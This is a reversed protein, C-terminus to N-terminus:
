AIQKRIKRIGRICIVILVIGAVMEFINQGMLLMETQKVPVYLGMIIFMDWVWHFLMTPIINKTKYFVWAFVGGTIGASIMQKLTFAFTAGGLLNTIHLFGFISASILIAPYIGRSEKFANFIIGRFLMEEGIGVMFTTGVITWVLTMDKGQYNGFYIQLFALAAAALLLEIIWLNIKPKSFATGRFFKYYFLLAAGMSLPMFYVLVTVMQPKSYDIDVIHKMVYMGVMMIAMYIGTAILAMKEKKTLNM